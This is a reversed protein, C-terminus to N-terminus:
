LLSIGFTVWGIVSAFVDSVKLSVLALVILGGIITTLRLRYYWDRASNARGEMWLVQDLWRSHLFHKQFDPLDLTEILRGLEKKLCERSSIQKLM